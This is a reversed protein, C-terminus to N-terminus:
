EFVDLETFFTGEDIAEEVWMLHRLTGLSAGQAPRVSSVHIGGEGLDGTDVVAILKWGAKAPQGVASPRVAQDSGWLTFKQPARNSAHWSHTNIRSVLVPKKLDMVLRGEGRDFWVNADTDDQNAAGHGDTLRPLLKGQAGSQGHPAVVGGGEVFEVTAGHGSAADAYDTSSVALDAPLDAYREARKATVQGVPTVGKPLYRSVQTTARLAVPEVGTFDDYLPRAPRVGDHADAVATVAFVRIRPNNPLTLTKAGAPVDLAYKFLYSYTYAQDRGERAHRHSCFWALTDRKMFPASLGALGNNM